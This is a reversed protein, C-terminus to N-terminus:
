KAERTAELLHDYLSQGRFLRPRLGCSLRLARELHTIEKVAWARGEEAGAAFALAEQAKGDAFEIRLTAIDDERTPHFVPSPYRNAALRELAQEFESM